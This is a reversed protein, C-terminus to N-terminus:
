RFKVGGRTKVAPVLIGPSNVRGNRNMLGGYSYFTGPSAQNRYETTIWSLPRASDSVRPDDLDGKFFTDSGTPTGIRVPLADNDITISLSQSNVLVGDLYMRQTVGDYTGVLYHWNLDLSGNTLCWQGFSPGGGANNTVCYEYTNGASGTDLVWNNYPPALSNRRNMLAAFNNQPTSSAKLWLSVTQASSTDLTSSSPVNIYDNVGDFDQAGDIKGLIPYPENAALRSGNNANSTSDVLSTGTTAALHWVGKYNSDWVGTRNSHDTNIATADGGFYLFLNTDTVGSLTPIRVWAILQGTTSSYYEIEYDLATTGDASTFVLELGTSSAMKGGSGTFKLDPDTVSFLMPFNTLSSTTAVKQHDVTILKRYSWIGSTSYWSNSNSSSILKSNSSSSSRIRSDLWGYSYFTGPSSQNNYETQIWGASRNTDSFRIEDLSSNLYNSGGSRGDRGFNLDSTDNVLGSAAIITSQVGDKYTILNSGTYVLYYSHWM